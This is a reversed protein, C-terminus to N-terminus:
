HSSLNLFIKNGYISTVQSVKIIIGYKKSMKHNYLDEAVLKWCLEKSKQATCGVLLYAGSNPGGLTM